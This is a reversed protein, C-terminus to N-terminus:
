SRQGRREEFAEVVADMAEELACRYPRKEDASLGTGSSSLLEESTWYSLVTRGRPESPRARQCLWASVAARRVDPLSELAFDHHM